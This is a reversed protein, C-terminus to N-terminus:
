DAREIMQFFSGFVLADQQHNGVAFVVGAMVSEVFGNAFHLLGVGDDVGDAQEAFLTFLIGLFGLLGQFLQGLSGTAQGEERFIDVVDVIYAFLDGAVNAVLVSQGVVRGVGLAVAGVAGDLHFDDRGTATAFQYGAGAVAVVGGAAGAGGGPLLKLFTLACHIARTDHAFGHVRLPIQKEM